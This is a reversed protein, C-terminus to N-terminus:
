FFIFPVTASIAGLTIASYLIGAIGSLPYGQVSVTVLSVTGTGTGTAVNNVAGSNSPVLVTVMGTTLGQLQASGSCASGSSVPSGTVVICVAEQQRQTGAGTAADTEGVALHRAASRVSKALTDYAYLARGFEVVGIVLPVLFLLVLGFEVAVAGHHKQSLKPRAIPM